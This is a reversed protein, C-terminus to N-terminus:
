AHRNQNFKEKIENIMDNRKSAVAEKDFQKFHKKARKKLEVKKDSESLSKFRGASVAIDKIEIPELLTELTSHCLICNDVKAKLSGNINVYRVDSIYVTYSCDPNTCKFQPM